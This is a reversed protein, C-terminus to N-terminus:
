HMFVLLWFVSHSRSSGPNMATAAVARNKNGKLMLEDIDELKSVVWM